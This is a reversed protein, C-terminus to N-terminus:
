WGDIDEERGGLKLLDDESKDLNGGHNEFLLPDASVKSDPEVM